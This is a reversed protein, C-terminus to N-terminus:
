LATITHVTLAVMEAKIQHKKLERAKAEKQWHWCM